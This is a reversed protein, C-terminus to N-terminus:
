LEAFLLSVEYNGATVPIEYFFSGFREDVFLMDDTTGAIATKPDVNYLYGGTFYKDASWVNGFSDTLEQGGCNIYIGTSTPPTPSPVTPAAPTPAPPTPAPPTPASTTPKVQIGDIKANDVKSKFSISLVKGDLVKLVHKRVIATNSGKAEAYIDFDVFM